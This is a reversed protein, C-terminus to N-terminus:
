KYATYLVVINDSKNTVNITFGNTNFSTLSGLTRGLANGNQDSYRLGICRSSSAYRSIDNISNGSGGIYIVQQTITGDDDRAFGNMTGFSNALGKNNDGAANDTDMDLTEVNAHAVFTISSPKFPLGTIIKNGTASIIFQGVYVTTNSKWSAKGNSDSTLVKGDGETGDVIKVSGNVQLKETPDSTGIGINANNGLILTNSKTAEANTGIATANTVYGSANVKANYGIANSNQGNASVSANAGIATSNQASTNIVARYGYVTTNNANGQAGSGVVTSNQNNAQTKFGIAVGANGGVVAERGITTGQYAAKANYGLATSLQYVSIRGSEINNAKLVLDENNTSGIFYGNTISNGKLSWSDGDTNENNVWSTGDFLMIKKTESNYVIAGAELPTVANIESTTGSPIGMVSFEDLQAHLSISFLCLVVFVIIKFKM